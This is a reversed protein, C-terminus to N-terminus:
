ATVATCIFYAQDPLLVQVGETIVLKLINYFVYVGMNNRM